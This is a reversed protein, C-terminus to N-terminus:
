VSKGYGTGEREDSCQLFLYMAQKQKLNKMTHNIIGYWQLFTRVIKLYKCIKGSNEKPLIKKSEKQLNTQVFLM